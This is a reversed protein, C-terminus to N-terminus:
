AEHLRRLRRVEAVLARIVDCETYQPDRLVATEEVEGVEVELDSGGLQSMLALFDYLSTQTADPGPDLALTLMDLTVDHVPLDPLNM